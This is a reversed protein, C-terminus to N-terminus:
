QLVYTDLLDDLVEETLEHGEQLPLGEWRVIGWPDVLIVHPIGEIGLANFMRRKPDVAASYNIKAGRHERVTDASQDSVGVIVLRDKYKRHFQNLKPITKLCPKCWTAWFDILVMKGERDPEKTLWEEVVFEPAPKNIFSKAYLPKVPVEADPLSPPPTQYKPVTEPQHKEAKNTERSVLTKEASSKSSDVAASGCGALMGGLLIGLLGWSFRM